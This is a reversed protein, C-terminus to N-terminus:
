ALMSVAKNLASVFTEVDQKSNYFSFSARTTGTIGFRKMLPQTCHHGTRVAIGQQDLLTGLDQPHIGDIVFSIVSAKNAAEGIIKLGPVKKLEATAMMLLEHELEAIRALGVENIYDIAPKLAIVGAIHPTGAEFKHPLDNYTTKEFTVEDIMDGGGQWPPMANLKDEKGFLVGVGTPGFMKHSSFVLFDCDLEQVDVKMHAIAQAADILTLAGFERALKVMEKAPNITGLANSILNFAVMKTNKNILKKFESLEVEGLDNVPAAVVKAGTREAVLQWPVINSHHELTTLLIEDGAKLNSLGWSWAVLNISETTGKTFIVQERKPSNIFTQLADRTQEYQMTGAESLYHVGRHINAANLSYHENVADIVPRCKLTSAANDLYILPKGHVTRALEPFDSRIQELSKM